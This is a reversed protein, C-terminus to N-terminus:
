EIKLSKIPNALAARFSQSGVTLFAILMVALGAVGFIWWEMDIRYKFNNLWSSMQNYAIPVAILLGGIVLYLFRKSLQFVINWTSAGLVKRIGIEKTRQETMFTAMAFLGLCAIFIALLSFTGFLKGARDEALYMKAFRDDLFTYRFPKTPAFTKWLAETKAILNDLSEGSSKVSIVSNSEALILGLSTVDGKLSEFNFDEVVGIVTLPNDMFPGRIQKGVPDVLGFEEVGRQNLIVAQSDTVMTPEFNRGAVIKMGLTNIYDEDVRWVQMGLQTQGNQSSNTYFAM